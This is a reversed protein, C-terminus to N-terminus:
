SANLEVDACSDAACLAVEADSLKGARVGVPIGLTVLAGLLGGLGLGVAVSGVLADFIRMVLGVLLLVACAILIAQLYRPQRDLRAHGLLPLRESPPMKRMQAERVKLRSFCVPKTPGNRMAADRDGRQLRFSNMVTAQTPWIDNWRSRTVGYAELIPLTFEPYPITVALSSDLVCTWSCLPGERVAVLRLREAAPYDRESLSCPMLDVGHRALFAVRNKGEGSVYFIGLPKVHCVHAVLGGKGACSEQTFLAIAEEVTRIDRPLRGEPWKYSSGVVFKVPVRACRAPGDLVPGTEFFPLVAKLTDVPWCAFDGPISGDIFIDAALTDKWLWFWAPKPDDKDSLARRAGVFDEVARRLAAPTEPIVHEM